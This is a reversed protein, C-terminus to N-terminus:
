TNNDSRVVAPDHKPWQYRLKHHLMTNVQARQALDRRTCERPLALMQRISSKLRRGTAWLGIARVVCSDTDDDHGAFRVYLGGGAEVAVVELDM